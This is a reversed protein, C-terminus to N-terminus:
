LRKKFLTERIKPEDVFNRWKKRVGNTARISEKELNYNNNWEM